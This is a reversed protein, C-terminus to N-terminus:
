RSATWASSIQRAGLLFMTYGLLTLLIGIRMRRRPTRVPQTPVFNSADLQPSVPNGM